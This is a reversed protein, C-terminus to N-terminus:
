LGFAFVKKAANPNGRGDGCRHARAIHDQEHEDVHEKKEDCAPETRCTPVAQLAVSGL